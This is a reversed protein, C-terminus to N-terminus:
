DDVLLFRLEQVSYSIKSFFTKYYNFVDMIGKVLSTEIEKNIKKNTTFNNCKSATKSCAM